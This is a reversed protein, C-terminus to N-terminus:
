PSSKPPPLSPSRLPSSKTARSSMGIAMLSILLAETGSAVTICHKAGTYEALKGEVEAVEPGIIYQGHHLVRHINRELQPRLNDQQGALDIFSLPKAQQPAQLYQQPTITHQPYRECLKGDRTLLKISDATFRSLARVLQEDEPDQSDFVNGEGALSALWHKDQAFVKLARRALAACHRKDIQTNQAEAKRMVERVMNFEMTQVSGAYLWLRAGQDKCHQLAAASIPAFPMRNACVDLVINVDILLDMAKFRAGRNKAFKHGFTL